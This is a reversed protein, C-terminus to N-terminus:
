VDWVTLFCRFLDLEKKLNLILILTLIMNQSNIDALQCKEIVVNLGEKKTCWM